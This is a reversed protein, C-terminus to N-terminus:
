HALRLRAPATDLPLQTQRTPLPGMRNTGPAPALLRGTTNPGSLIALGFASLKRYDIPKNLFYFSDLGAMM